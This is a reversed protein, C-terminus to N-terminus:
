AVLLSSLHKQSLPLVFQLLLFPNQFAFSFFEFFFTPDQSLTLSHTSLAHSLADALTHILSIFIVSIQIQLCHSNLSNKINM